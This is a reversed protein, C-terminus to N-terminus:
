RVRKLLDAAHADGLTIAKRYWGAARAPDPTGGPAIYHPDYTKGLATAADANGAEAAREFSLRAAAIDGLALSRDGRQMLVAVPELSVTGAPQGSRTIPPVDARPQSSAIQEPSDAIPQGRQGSLGKYLFM